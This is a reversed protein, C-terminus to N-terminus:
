LVESTLLRPLDTTINDFIEAQDLVKSMLLAGEMTALLWAARQQATHLDLGANVFVETTLWALNKDFFRKTALKIPEPLVESESALQGCLCMKKDSIAAQRFLNIYESLRETSKLKHQSLAQLLDNFRDTYRTAVAVGLDTKTPFHYHISASKIGIVKSIERFSFSNYGGARVQIEALDIIKDVTSNAM